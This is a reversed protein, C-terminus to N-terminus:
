RRLNLRMDRREEQAAVLVARTSRALPARGRPGEGETPSVVFSTSQLSLLSCGFLMRHLPPKWSVSWIEPQAGSLSCVAGFPFHLSRSTRYYTGTLLTM